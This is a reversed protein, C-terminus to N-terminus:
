GKRAKKPARRPKVDSPKRPNKKQPEAIKKVAKNGLKILEQAAHKALYNLAAKIALRVAPSLRRTSQGPTFDHEALLAL